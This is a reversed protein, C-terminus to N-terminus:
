YSESIGSESTAEDTESKEEEEEDKEEEDEKVDEDEEVEEEEVARSLLEAVQLRFLRQYRNRDSGKYGFECCCIWIGDKKRLFETSPSPIRKAALQDITACSRQPHRRASDCHPLPVRLPSRNHCM